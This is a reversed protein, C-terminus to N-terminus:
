DANKVRFIPAFGRAIVANKRTAQALLEKSSLDAIWFQQNKLIM